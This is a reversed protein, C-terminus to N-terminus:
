GRNNPQKVTVGAVSLEGEIIGYIKAIVNEEVVDSASIAHLHFEIDRLARRHKAGEAKHKECNNCTHM